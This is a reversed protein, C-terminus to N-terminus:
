IHGNVVYLMAIKNVEMSRVTVVSRARMAEVGAGATSSESALESRLLPHRKSDKDAGSTCCNGMRLGKSASRDDM